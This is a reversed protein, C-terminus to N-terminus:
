GGGGGGGGGDGPGQKPPERDPRKPPGKDDTKDVKPPPPAGQTTGDRASKSVRDYLSSVREQEPIRTVIQGSANRLLAQNPSAGNALRNADPAWGGPVRSVDLLVANIAIPLDRDLPTQGPGAVPETGTAPPEAGGPVVGRGGGGDQGEPRGTPVTESPAQTLKAIDYAFLPPLKATSALLDGPELNVKGQRWFGYYFRYLEATARTGGLPGEGGETAGIIFFCDMPDVEVPATWESPASYLVPTAAFKAQDGSIFAGRDFAPNNVVVRVRYRYTKGPEATLDHAWVRIAPDDLLAKAKATAGPAPAGGPETQVGLDKLQKDLRSIKEKVTKIEREIQPKTKPKPQKSTDQQPAPAQGPGGSRGKGGGTDDTKPPTKGGPDVASKLQEELDAEQKVLDARNSQLREIQTKANGKDRAEAAERPSVWDPGAITRYYDPRRAQGPATAAEVVLADLGAKHLTEGGTAQSVLDNRGPMGPVQVTNTWEGTSALEERELRAGLIQTADMWWNGPMAVAPGAGDPDASFAARLATGDFTAEVTVAEKDFPQQAPVFKALEPMEAVDGPHIASATVNALAGTPAPPVVEAVVAGLGPAKDGQITLDISPPHWALSPAPAVDGELSGKFRGLLDVGSTEPPTPTEVSSMKNTLQGALQELSRYADAPSVTKNDVTILNPQRVFQLALVGLFVAAVGGVVIKEVNREFPNIGKIKM